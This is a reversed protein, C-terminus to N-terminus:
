MTVKYTKGDGTKEVLESLKELSQENSDYEVKATKTEFNVTATKVGSTKNLEKEITKACGVECTMGEIKFSTTALKAFASITKKTEVTEAVVKADEKKCSILMLSTIAIALVSKLIKM